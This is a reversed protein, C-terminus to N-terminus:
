NTRYDASPPMLPTEVEFGDILNDDWSELSQASTQSKFVSIQPIDPYAGDDRLHTHHQSKAQLRFLMVWLPLLQTLRTGYMYVAYGVSDDSGFIQDCNEYESRVYFTIDVAFAMLGTLSFAGILSWLTVKKWTTIAGKATPFRDMAKTLKIGAIVFIVALVLESASFLVWAVEQCEIKNSKKSAIAWALCSSFYVVMLVLFPNMVRTIFGRKNHVKLALKSYWFCLLLAQLVQLYLAVFHIAITGYYIWKYSLLGTQLLGLCFIVIFSSKSPDKSSRLFWLKYICACFTLIALSGTMAARTCADVDGDPQCATIGVHYYSANTHNLASDFLYHEM